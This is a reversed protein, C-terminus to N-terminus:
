FHNSLGETAVDFLEALRTTLLTIFGEIFVVLLQLIGLDPGIVTDIFHQALDVLM